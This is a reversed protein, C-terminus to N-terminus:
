RRRKAKKTNVFFNAVSPAKAKVTAPKEEQLLEEFASHELHALFPSEEKQKTPLVPDPNEYFMWPVSTKTKAANDKRPKKANKKSLGLAGAMTDTRDQKARALPEIMAGDADYFVMVEEKKELKNAVV